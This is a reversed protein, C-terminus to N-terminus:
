PTCMYQYVKGDIVYIPYYPTRSGGGLKFMVYYGNVETDCNTTNVYLETGFTENWEALHDTIGNQPANALSCINSSTLAINQIVTEIVYVPLGFQRCSATFSVNSGYSTGASNTAYARVYYTTSATLSTLSSSYSGTGTGNSTHSNATTPNTSTNWCVGRATVTAGGDSTVNGGSTATTETIATIATTTVTPITASPPGYNRFESMWNAGGIAYTADFYSSNANTFADGLCTGGTVGIIDSLCLGTIPLKQGFSNLCLLLSVILIKAKM